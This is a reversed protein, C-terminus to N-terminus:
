KRMVEYIKVVSGVYYQILYCNHFFSEIMSYKQAIILDNNLKMELTLQLERANSIM